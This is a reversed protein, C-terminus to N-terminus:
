FYVIDVMVTILLIKAQLLLLHLGGKLATIFTLPNSKLLSRYRSILTLTKSDNRGIQETQSKCPVSRLVRSIM